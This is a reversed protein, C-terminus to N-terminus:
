LSGAGPLTSRSPVPKLPTPAPIGAIPNTSKVLASVTKIALGIVQNSSLNPDGSFDRIRQMDQLEAFSGPSEFMSVAGNEIWFQTGSRHVLYLDLPRHRMGVVCNDGGTDIAERPIHVVAAFNSVIGFAASLLSSTLAM